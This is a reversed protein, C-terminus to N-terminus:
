FHNFTGVSFGSSGNNKYVTISVATQDGAVSQIVTEAQTEHSAAIVLAFLVGVLFKCVSKM